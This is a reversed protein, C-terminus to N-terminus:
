AESGYELLQFSRLDEIIREAEPAMMISGVVEGSRPSLRAASM